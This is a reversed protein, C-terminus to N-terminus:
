TAGRREMTILGYNSMGADHCLGVPAERSGDRVSLDGVSPIPLM